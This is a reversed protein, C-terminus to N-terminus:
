PLLEVDIAPYLTRLPEPSATIVPWQRAAALYAVHGPTTAAPRHASRLIGSGVAHAEDLSAFAVLPFRLIATLADRGHPQLAASADAVCTAPALLPIVQRHATSLLARMHLSGRAAAVLATTDLIRGGIADATM